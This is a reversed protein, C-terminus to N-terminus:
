AVHAKAYECIVKASAKLSSDEGEYKEAIWYILREDMSLVEKLTRGAHKKITCVTALAQEYREEETLEVPAPPQESKKESTTADSSEAANETKLEGVPAKETNLNFFDDKMADFQLGFGANRLAIGIATTQAWGMASISPKDAIPERFASAESLYENEADKRNMYIRATGTFGSGSPVVSIAIKGDPYKMRFMAIRIGVPLYERREGTALAAYEEAFVSPDFDEIENIKGIRALMAKTESSNINCM